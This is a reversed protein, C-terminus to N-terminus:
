YYYDNDSLLILIIMFKIMEEEKMSFEMSLLVLLIIMFKIM